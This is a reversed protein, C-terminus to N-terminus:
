PWRCRVAEVRRLTHEYIKTPVVWVGHEVAWLGIAETLERSAVSGHPEVALVM